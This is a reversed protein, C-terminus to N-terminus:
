LTLYANKYRTSLDTQQPTKKRERKRGTPYGCTPTSGGGESTHRCLLRPPLSLFYRCFATRHPQRACPALPVPTALVLCLDVRLCFCCLRTAMNLVVFRARSTEQRRSYLMTTLMGWTIQSRKPFHRSDFRGRFIKRALATSNKQM